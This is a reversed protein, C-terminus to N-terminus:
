FGYLHQRADFADRGGELIDEALKRIVASDLSGIGDQFPMGHGQKSELAVLLESDGLVPVNANHTSVILQRRGKLARLHQVVGTYIFRNDLDDEPQDIVLPASSASLLLLLLATAKQGRSLDGLSRYQRPEDDVSVDLEVSVARPLTLEEIMRILPEGADVLKSAQGESVSMSQKIAAAGDRVTTVFTSPDFRESMIFDRIQHRQGTVHEDLADLFASRDATLAPKVIVRGGSARNAHRIAELFAEQLVANRARLQGLLTLRTAQLTTVQALLEPREDQRAVLASHAQSADLYRAPELGEETLQRLIANNEDRQPGVAQEWQSIAAEVESIAKKLAEAAAEVANRIAASASAVSAEVARHIELQPRDEAATEFRALKTIAPQETWGTVISSSNKLLEKAAALHDEDGALGSVTDLRTAVDSKDYRDKQEKLRPLEALAADLEALKEEARSLLRRNEALEEQVRGIEDDADSQGAFRALMRAVAEPDHSLEALEHQGFIEVEEIVDAPVMKLVTGASDMVVPREGVARRITYEMPFPESVGVVISVIAGPGLVHSIMGQHEKAAEKGLPHLDLAFRISEILTSKGTGRGGIIATLESAFPITVNDLFGGLCTVERITPRSSIEPRELAVRTGPTRVALRLGDLTPASLKFWTSTGRKTLADPHCIDDAYVIALPHDRKFPPQGAAIAEQNTASPLDPSIGLVHLMEHHIVNQLPQGSLRGMLGTDVNAHPPLVLAGRAAMAQLIQAIPATGSGSGGPSGGCQGIAANIASAATSEAFIVLVHVGESSTAEFGPLATVGAARLAVLLSEATDISWHDTVAVIEINEALVAAVSADNYTVEDTFKLAPSHAGKYGFPNMQLAARYWRAPSAM